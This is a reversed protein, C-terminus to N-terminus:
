KKHCLIEDVTKNITWDTNNLVLFKKSFKKESFMQVHEDIEGNTMRFKEERKTNRVYLAEKDPLILIKNDCKLIKDIISWGFLLVGEIVVVYGNDKFNKALLAVNKACLEWQKKGEVSKDYIFGREVFHKVRDIDIRVCKDFKKCLEKSITSKGSATPGTIIFTTTKM